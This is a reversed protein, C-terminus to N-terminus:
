YLILFCYYMEMNELNYSNYIRKVNNIKGGVKFYWMKM